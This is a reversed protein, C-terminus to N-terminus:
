ASHYFFVLFVAALPFQNYHLALHALQRSYNTLTSKSKGTICMAREMEKYLELFGMVKDCAQKVITVYNIDMPRLGTTQKTQM